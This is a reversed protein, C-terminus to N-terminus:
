RLREMGIDHLTNEREEVSRLLAVRVDGITQRPLRKKKAIRLLLTSIRRNFRQISSFKMRSTRWISPEECDTCYTGRRSLIGGKRLLDSAKENRPIAILEAKTLTMTGKAMKIM